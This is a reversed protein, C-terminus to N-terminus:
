PLDERKITFTGPRLKLAVQTIREGDGITDIDLSEAENFNLTIRQGDTDFVVTMGDVNVPTFDRIM